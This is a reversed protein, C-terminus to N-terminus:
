SRAGNRPEPRGTLGQAEREIYPAIVRPGIHLRRATLILKAARTVRPIIRNPGFQTPQTVTSSGSSM